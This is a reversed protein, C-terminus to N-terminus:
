HISFLRELISEIKEHSYFFVYLYPNGKKEAKLKMSVVDSGSSVESMALAGIHEGDILKLCVVCYYYV